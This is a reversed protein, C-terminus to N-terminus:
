AQAQRALSRDMPLPDVSLQEFRESVFDQLDINPSATSYESPAYTSATYGSATSYSAGSSTVSATSEPPSVAYQRSVPAYSYTHASKKSMTIPGVTAYQYTAMTITPPSSPSTHNQYYYYLRYVILRFLFFISIAPLLHLTYATLYSHRVLSEETQHKHQAHPLLLHSLAQLLTPLAFPAKSVQFKSSFLLLFVSFSSFPSGKIGEM